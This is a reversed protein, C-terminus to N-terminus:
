TFVKMMDLTYEQMALCENMIDIADDLMSLDLADSNSQNVRLNIFVECDFILARVHEIATKYYSGALNVDYNGEFLDQASMVHSRTKQIEKQALQLYNLKTAANTSDCAKLLYDNAAATTLFAKQAYDNASKTEDFTWLKKDTSGPTATATPNVAAVTATTGTTGTTRGATTTAPKTTGAGQGTLSGTCRKLQLYEGNYVTIYQNKPFNDNERIDRNASSNDYVAFYAKSDSSTCTLKYEGAPIDVGVRYMGEPVDSANINLKVGSANTFVGRSVELYQGNEVTVFHCGRFNENELIDDGSSDANIAFYSQVDSICEIYYEGAPLDTGVKYTSAEYWTGSSQGKTAPRTAETTTTVFEVEIEYEYDGSNDGTYGSDDKNEGCNMCITGMYRHGGEVFRFEEEGCSLCVRYEEGDSYCSPERGTQWPGYEHEHSCATFVSLMLALVSLIAFYKSAKKM